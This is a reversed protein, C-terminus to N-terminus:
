GKFFFLVPEFIWDRLGSSVVIAWALLGIGIGAMSQKAHTIRNLMHGIALAVLAFAISLILIGITMAGIASVVYTLIAALWYWSPSRLIGLITFAVAMPAAILFITTLVSAM